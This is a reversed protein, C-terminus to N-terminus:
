WPQTLRMKKAPDQNSPMPKSSRKLVIDRDIDEALAMLVNLVKFDLNLLDVELRNEHSFMTFDENTLADAEVNQERPIWQLDLDIQRDQLQMALEMLIVSAPFATSMFKDLVYANTQNDTYATLALRGALDKWKAGPGFVMIGVTIALLELSSIIKFPEGKVYIWPANKRTLKVSFWRARNPPCGSFSEWGGISVVGADAKADVRFIEGGPRPVARPARLPAAKIAELFFRLTLQVALPIATFSGAGIKSTWRYILALFPRSHKLPGALFGMRGLASRMDRGLVSRRDLVEGIWTELWEVKKASIGVLGKKVDVTYGLWEVQQGGRTKPWSLPAGMVTLFLLLALLIKRYAPGSVMALGDDAYLLAYLPDNCPLFRWMVRQLTGALRSWWFAASAVGFTGVCNVYVKDTEDLRFAQLGWDSSHIPILRHAGKYDYAMALRRSDAEAMFQAMAAELDDFLPFRMRNGVKIHHNVEVGHTADHVVRIQDWVPDKPVAALSAVKLSNGFGARAEDLSMELIDGKEIDKQIQSKVKEMHDLASRYNERVTEDTWHDETPDPLNWKTKEEYVAPVRPIEGNTGLKVGIAAMDELYECDPDGATRAVNLLLRLEIASSRDGPRRSPHFGEAELRRTWAARITEPLSGFPHDELRGCLVQAMLRLEGARGLPELWEAFAEWFIGKLCAATSGLRPDRDKAAQRGMSCLGLGDHFPRSRGKYHARLTGRRCGGKPEEPGTVSWESVGTVPHDEGMEVGDFGAEQETETAPGKGEVVGTVPDRERRGSGTVPVKGELVEKTERVRVGTVPGVGTVPDGKGKRAGTVPSGGVHVGTVPGVGTIPDRKEKGVGTVPGGEEHAGTVPSVGTAPGEGPSKPMAVKGGGVPLSASFDQFILEALAVDMAPPYVGTDTTAFPDHAHQKILPPHGGHTCRAPLPGVYYGESDFLPPGSVGFNLVAPINSLLRTPKLREINFRCQFFAVTHWSNMKLLAWFAPLQWISAPFILKGQLNTSCGLDEPHECIVKVLYELKSGSIVHCITFCFDVLVNGLRALELFHGELWPFGRPWFKNRLPRPGWPNSHLARSWTNSPPSMFIYDYLGARVRRLLEEQVSEQSLDHDPSCLIDWEELFLEVDAQTCLQRLAQGLSAKREPGAYM